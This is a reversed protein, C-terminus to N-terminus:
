LITVANLVLCIRFWSGCEEDAMYVYNILGNFKLIMYWKYQNPYVTWKLSLIGSEFPESSLHLLKLNNSLFVIIIDATEPFREWFLKHYGKVNINGKRFIFAIDYLLVYWSLVSITQLEFNLYLSNGLM